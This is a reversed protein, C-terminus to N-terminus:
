GGDMGTSIVLSSKDPIVTKVDKLLSLGGSSRRSYILLGKKQEEGELLQLGRRQFKEELRILLENLRIEAGQNLNVTCHNTGAIERVHSIFGVDISM